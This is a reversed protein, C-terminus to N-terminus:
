MVIKYTTVYIDDNTTYQIVYKNNKRVVLLGITKNHNAKKVTKDIYRVYFDLQGIDIHKLEGRKVEVVVYCNLEVNFFLLDIRYTKNNINIKYEHGILAFGLGLELFKNELLEIIFSHVAKEDLTDLLNNGKILIPDKIMDKITLTYNDDLILKINEKDAYSLREFSKNKIELRLERVSLKNLIVLNMYYNRANENKISLIEVIHSWNLKGSMTPFIPFLRYFMRMKYLERYNYRKGYTLAFKDAWSKLVQEGYKIKDQAEVLLKGINWYAQLKESNDQLERVRRNVEINEIVIAIEEYYNKM